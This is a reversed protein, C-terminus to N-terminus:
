NAIPLHTIQSLSINTIKELDVQIQVLYSKELALSMCICTGTSAKSCAM